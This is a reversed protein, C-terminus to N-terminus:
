KKEKGLTNAKILKSVMENYNDEYEKRLKDFTGEPLPEDGYTNSKYLSSKFLSDKISRQFVDFMKDDKSMKMREESQMETVLGERIYDEAFEKTKQTSGYITMFPTFVDTKGSQKIKCLISITMPDGDLPAMPNSTDTTLPKGERYKDPGRARVNIDAIDDMNFIGGVRFAKLVAEIISDCEQQIDRPGYQNSENSM